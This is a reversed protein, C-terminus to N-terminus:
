HQVASVTGFLALSCTGATQVEPVPVGLKELENYLMEYLPQPLPPPPDSSVGLCCTEERGFRNCTPECICPLLVFIIAYRSM